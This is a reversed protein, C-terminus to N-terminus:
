SRVRGPWRDPHNWFDGSRDGYFGELAQDMVISTRLATEGTSPAHGRGLLEDVIKQILPLQVHPPYPENFEETMGGRELLIRGGGFASFRIRGEAGSIEILDDTMDSAFNWLSAGPAGRESQWTVSVVDEADYGAALHAANGHVNTFKGTLYDLVDFVHSALDLFVGGGSIPVNVRWMAPAGLDARHTPSSHRHLIGTIAGIRGTDLLEKVKVFNPLARRYYAVFLPLKAAGFAEVMRRAETAHRAMPKEVYCPKGAAAVRLAYECHSDPPTAVYVASVDPDHILKDADDYWRPVRHRGAYDAAKAGDRRMVAVLESGIAKQLAPGSKVETVDGCGIIGWSINMVGIM